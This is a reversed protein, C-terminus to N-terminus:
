KSEKHLTTKKCTKCFKNLELKEPTNKKNKSSNYNINKCVSCKLGVFNRNENKAAM